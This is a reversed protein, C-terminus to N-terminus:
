IKDNGKEVTQKSEVKAYVFFENTNEGQENVIFAISGCCETSGVHNQYRQGCVNCEVTFNNQDEM